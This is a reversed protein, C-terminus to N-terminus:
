SPLRVAPPAAASGPASGRSAVAVLLAVALGTVVGYAVSGMLVYQFPTPEQLVVHPLPAVTLPLARYYSIYFLTGGILSAPLWLFSFGMLREDRRAGLALVLTEAAASFAAGLWGGFGFTLGAFTVGLM